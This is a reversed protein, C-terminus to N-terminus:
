EVVDFAAGVAGPGGRYVFRYRGVPLGPCITLASAHIHDDVIADGDVTLRWTFGTGPEHEVLKSPYPMPTGEYVRVDQWGETTLVDVNVEDRVGTRQPKARVNTLSVTVTDGHTVTTDSVRLAFTPVGNESVIGWPVPAGSRLPEARTVDERDCELPDPKAPPEGDPKVHGSLRDLSVSTRPADTPSGDTRTASPADSYCGAVAPVLAVSVRRLIDRRDTSPM